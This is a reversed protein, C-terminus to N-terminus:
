MRYRKKILLYKSLRCLYAEMYRHVGACSVKVLSKYKLKCSLLSKRFDAVQILSESDRVRKSKQMLNKSEGDVNKM